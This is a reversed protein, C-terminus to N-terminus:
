HYAVVKPMDSLWRVALLRSIREIDRMHTDEINFGSSKMARFATEIEWRKKYTLIAGEPRTFCILIQM